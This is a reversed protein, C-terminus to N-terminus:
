ALQSRQFVTHQIGIGLVKSIHSNISVAKASVILIFTLEQQHVRTWYPQLRVYFPFYFTVSLLSLWSNSFLFFRHAVGPSVWGTLVQDEVELRWFLCFLVRDNVVGGWDTTNQQQPLGLSHTCGGENGLLVSHPTPSPVWIQSCHLANYGPGVPREVQLKEEGSYM